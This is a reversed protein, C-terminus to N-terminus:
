NHVTSTKFTAQLQVFIYAHFTHFSRLRPLLAPNCGYVTYLSPRLLTYHGVNTQMPALKFPLWNSSLIKQLQQNYKYKYKRM